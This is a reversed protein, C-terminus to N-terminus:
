LVTAVIYTEVPDLLELSFMIPRKFPVASKFYCFLFAETCVLLIIHTVLHTQTLHM